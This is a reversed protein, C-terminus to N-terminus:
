FSRAKTRANSDDSTRVRRAPSPGAEHGFLESELLGTPIAACNLKVFTRAKRGSLNHIARAVLEKGTGTEGQVLVTSDTPAVIVIKELTERIALRAREVVASRMTQMGGRGGRKVELTARITTFPDLAGAFRKKSKRAGHAVVSIRGSTTLLHVIRDSDGYDVGGVVIATLEM